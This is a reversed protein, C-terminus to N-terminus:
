EGVTGSTRVQHVRLADAAQPVQWREVQWCQGGALHYSVTYHAGGSPALDVHLIGAHLIVRREGAAIPDGDVGLYAPWSIVVFGAAPAGDAFYIVDSIRTLTM